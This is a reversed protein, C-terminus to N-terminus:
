DLLLYSILEKKDMNIKGDVIANAMLGKHEVINNIREDITNKALMTYITINNKTGIRHCRDVAQEKLAMNWPEDLFIEITGATLTIGTGMAGITGLIYDVKDSTQFEDVYQMRTFTDTDGTITHGYFHKKNLLNQLPETVQTWNSFIVVKQNNSKAEELLEVVRDFKASEEITSSLIGTYGTAQRLRILETLPNNSMVIKDINMQIDQKVEDYLLKQKPTLEVYENIYIKEPLDFVDEKLRRIMFTNLTNQLQKLNRYGIIEYGGYGGYICYYQKFAYFSHSEYGLWKMVFYLDIPTNMLPTGTMAIMTKTSLKLMGKGQQSSPNKCAHAEDFIIMNIEDNLASKRLELICKDNRLTEINTIIFYESIAELHTIDYLKSSNDKIKINGSKDKRQGLIYWDENSHTEIENAWNWKLGNVGCVILCHKYGNEQKKICALDIAVKSKGLGMSDGLLWKDHNLGFEIAEIQHSFPKTKFTYNEPIKHQKSYLLETGELEYEFGNDILEKCLLELHGCSVEWEHIDPFYYRTPLSRFIKVIDADYKFSAFISYETGLKKSQKITLNIM